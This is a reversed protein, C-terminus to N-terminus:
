NRALIYQSRNYNFISLIYTDSYYLPLALPLPLPLPLALALPLPQAIALPLALPIAIANNYSTDYSV